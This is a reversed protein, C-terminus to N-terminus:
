NCPAKKSKCLVMLWPLPTVIKVVNFYPELLELFRRKSWHQVHGPTNGLRKIYRGGIINLLRWLPERPVSLLAYNNALQSLIKLAKEPYQLHELVECCIVLEASDPGPKLDYINAITFKIDLKKSEANARALSIIEPSVDSARVLRDQRALKISLNGEGCGIEYIDTANSMGVLINLSKLFNNMLHKAIFNSTDYKDYINGAILKNKMIGADVDNKGPKIKIFSKIFAVTNQVSAKFGSRTLNYYIISPRLYFSLLAKRQWKILDMASLDNVSVVANGWRRYQLWDSTLLRLGGVGSKAYEYFETGPFPTGVNIYAQKCKLKKIFKITNKITNKTEGPLGFIVSLRTELGLNYAIKYAKQIQELTIGKKATDLINQNGSEVGFSIRNLGADKLKKLLEYSVVNVRTYGEFTIDLKESIILDCLKFTKERDLGLTDDLFSFHRINYEKVVLKLEGLVNEANRYRVKRGFIVNQSCFICMFPCGRSTMISAMPQIGKGPISWVYKDNELLHRAPYKLLDLDHLLDERPMIGKVPNILFKRFAVEGEGQIVTDVFDSVIVSNPLASCHPGGAVTWIAKNYEKIKRFLNMAQNCLPTTFTVGAVDPKYSSLVEALNPNIELDIIKVEHNSPINAALSALGLPPYLVGVKAAPSFNGYVETFSPNILLIKM